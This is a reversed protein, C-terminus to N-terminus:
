YNINVTCNNMYIVKQTTVNSNLQSVTCDVKAKKLPPSKSVDSVEDTSEEKSQIHVKQLLPSLCKQDSTVKKSKQCISTAVLTSLKTKNRLSNEVYGQAVKDSQWGGLHKLDMMTGGANSLLTASTRRLAHGTYASTDELNLWSAIEKPVGCIKNKGIPQKTCKQKQYNLFFRDTKVEEPRLSQYKKVIISFKEHITFQRPKNNKTSPVDVLLLSGENKIHQISVQVLEDSRCCGM